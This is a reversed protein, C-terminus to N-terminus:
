SSYSQKEVKRKISFLKFNWQKHRTFHVILIGTLVGLVSGALVDELFHQGLYIRSYGVVLAVIFFLVCALSNQLRSILITILTFISTTHGSPFSSFGGHSIGNLFFHYASHPIITMPRPTSFMTKLIQVAIGSIFFGSLLQIGLQYLRWVLMLILAVVISFLGDGMCTAVIFINDLWHNHTINLKLFCNIKTDTLQMVTGTVLLCFLLIFFLLHQKILYLFTKM